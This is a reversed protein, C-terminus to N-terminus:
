KRCISTDNRPTGLIPVVLFGKTIGLLLGLLKCPIGRGAKRPDSHSAQFGVGAGGQLIQLSPPWSQMSYDSNALAVPMTARISVNGLASHRVITTLHFLPCISKIQKGEGKLPLHSRPTSSVARSTDYILSEVSRLDPRQRISFGAVSPNFIRCGGSWNWTVGPIIEREFGM